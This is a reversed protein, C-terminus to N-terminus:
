KEVTDLKCGIKKKDVTELGAKVCDESSGFHIKVEGTIKKGDMALGTEDFLIVDGAELGKIDVPSLLCNGAEAWASTELFGWSKLQKAFYEREKKSSGAGASLQVMEELFPDPFVIKVFGKQDLINVDLTLACINERQGTIQRIEAPDFLFKEFRFHVRPAAGGAAYVQSLVQMILYQLVGQETETLPKLESMAASDSLLKNIVVNAIQHDIQIIAKREIPTLGLVVIVPCSPLSGVFDGFSMTECSSLFYRIDQGLHKMLSKRISVHFKERMDTAPLYEYLARILEVEKGPIKKLNDLKFPKIM